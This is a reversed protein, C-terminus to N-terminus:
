LLIAKGMGRLVEMYTVHQRLEWLEATIFVICEITTLSGLIGNQFITMFGHMAPILDLSFASSPTVWTQKFAREALQL